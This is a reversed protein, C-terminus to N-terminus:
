GLHVGGLATPAEACQRAVSRRRTNSFMKMELEEMQAAQATGAPTPRGGRKATSPGAVCSVWMGRLVCMLLCVVDAHQMLTVCLGAVAGTM